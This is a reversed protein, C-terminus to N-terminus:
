HKQAPQKNQGEEPKKKIGALDVLSITKDDRGGDRDQGAIENEKEKSALGHGMELPMM